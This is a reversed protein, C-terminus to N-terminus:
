VLVGCVSPHENVVTVPVRGFSIAQGDTLENMAATPMNYNSSSDIALLNISKATGKANTYTLTWCTGCGPSNWGTVAPAGGVFPYKPLSGFTTFGRTLLGNPGDSCSVTSLSRKPDDYGTDYSATFANVSTLLITFFAFTNALKMTFRPKNSVRPHRSWHTNLQLSEFLLKPKYVM